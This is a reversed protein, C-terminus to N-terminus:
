ARELSAILELLAPVAHFWESNAMVRAEAFASHCDKEDQLTGPHCGLLELPFPSAVQLQRLRETPDRSTWGIKIRSCGIAGIFYVVGVVWCRPVRDGAADTPSLLRPQVAALTM